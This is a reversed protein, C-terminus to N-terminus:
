KYRKRKPAPQQDPKGRLMLEASQVEPEIIPMATGSQDTVLPPSEAKDKEIATQTVNGVIAQGGDSVSVSQVTVKPQPGSNWRQMTDMQIAFTRALKNYLNGYIETEETSKADRLQRAM